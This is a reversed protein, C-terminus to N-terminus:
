AVEMGTDEDGSGQEDQEEEPPLTRIITYPEVELDVGATEFSLAMMALTRYCYPHDAIALCRVTRTAVVQLDVGADNYIVGQPTGVFGAAWRINELATSTDEEDLEPLRDTVNTTSEIVKRETNEQMKESGIQLKELLSEGGLRALRRPYSNECTEALIRCEDM